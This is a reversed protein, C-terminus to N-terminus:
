EADRARARTLQATVPQQVAEGVQTLGAADDVAADDVEEDKGEDFDGAAMAADAHAAPLAHAIEQLDDCADVPSM